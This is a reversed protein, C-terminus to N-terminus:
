VALARNVIEYVDSSLGQRGVITELHERMRRQRGPDYRRWQNFASVLRSALQPNRSDLALVQEALLAYGAGDSGHFRLPNGMAFAGFLARVRNPNALSFDPHGSLARVRECTEPLRSQAHLSFWKDLVLPDGRWREYFSELSRERAAGPLDVLLGLAMQRDTMNDATQFRREIEATIVPEDLAALCRLCTNALRRRDVGTRDFRYPRLASEREYIRELAPRHARALAALVFARAGHVAEVDICALAQGLLSESPLTLSLAKQSGDLKEDDLLRGFAEVFADPLAAPPTEGWNSVRELLVQQALQQGAEWRNFPDSDHAMLFALEELTREFELKVPASFGRLLSPVPPAEVDEFVFRQRPEALLLLRTPAASAVAEGELRLPLDRGEADLLGLAVPIPLARAEAEAEGSGQELTLEYRSREADHVGSAALRPTGAQRYWEEFRTLDAGNADAMAARFDDCTVAEGDHRQFYLDMGRRFGEAGLLTHYLRVVEAGKEYVTATYFNDM